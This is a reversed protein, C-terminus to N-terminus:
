SDSSDSKPQNEDQQRINFLAFVNGRYNQGVSLKVGHIGILNGELTEIHKVSVIYSKHIRIFRNSPLSEELEKMSILATIKKATTHFTVYAKQGEIYILNDYNIKYWKRDARIVM